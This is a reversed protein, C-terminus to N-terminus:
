IKVLDFMEDPNVGWIGSIMKVLDDPDFPKLLLHLKHKEFDEEEYELQGPELKGTIIIIPTDKTNSWTKRAKHILSVGDEKPMRLDTIILDYTKKLIQPEAQAANGYCEVKVGYNRLYDALMEQVDIEDDVLIVTKM